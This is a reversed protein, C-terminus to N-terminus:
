IWQIMKTKCEFYRYKTIFIAINFIIERVSHLVILTCKYGIRGYSELHEKCYSSSQQGIIDVKCSVKPHNLTGMSVHPSIAAGSRHDMDMSSQTGCILLDLIPGSLTNQRGHSCNSRILCPLLSVFCSKGVTSGVPSHAAWTGWPLYPEWQRWCSKLGGADHGVEFKM